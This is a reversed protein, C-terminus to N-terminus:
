ACPTEEAYWCLVSEVFEDVPLAKTELTARDMTTWQKFKVADM